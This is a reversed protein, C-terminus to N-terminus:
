AHCLLLYIAFHGVTLQEELQNIRSKDSAIDKKVKAVQEEQDKIQKQSQRTQEKLFADRAEKTTFVKKRGQKAYLERQRQEAM